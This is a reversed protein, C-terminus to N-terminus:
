ARVAEGHLWPEWDLASQSVVERCDGILRPSVRWMLRLGWDLASQSAVERCDGILRPSVRWMLRLGWYLASQSTVERRDEILRPHGGRSLGWGLASQSALVVNVKDEQWYTEPVDGGDGRSERTPVQPSPVM